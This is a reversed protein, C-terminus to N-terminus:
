KRCGRIVRITGIRFGPIHLYVVGCSGSVHSKLKKGVISSGAPTESLVDEDGVVAM